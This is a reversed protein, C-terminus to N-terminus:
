TGCPARARPIPRLGRRALESQVSAINIIKGEGRAIMHRAVAQGVHFDSSVNTAMLREWDDIAKFDELVGRIQMGANNILIDIPGIEAEIRDIAEGVAEHDTVNSSRPQRM